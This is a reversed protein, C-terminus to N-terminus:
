RRNCTQDERCALQGFAAATEAYLTPEVTRQCVGILWWVCVEQEQARRHPVNKSPKTSNHEQCQQFTFPARMQKIQGSKEGTSCAPVICSRSTFPVTITPCSNGMSRTGAGVARSTLHTNVPGNRCAQRAPGQETSGHKSAAWICLNRM